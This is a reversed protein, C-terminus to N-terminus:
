ANQLVGEVLWDSWGPNKTKFAAYDADSAGGFQGFSPNIRAYSFGLNVHANDALANPTYGTAHGDDTRAYCETLYFFGEDVAQGLGLGGSTHWGNGIIAKPKDPLGRAIANLIGERDGPGEDEAIMFESNGPEMLGLNGGETVWTGPIISEALCAEHFYPWNDVGDFDDLELALWKYGHQAAKIALRRSQVGM